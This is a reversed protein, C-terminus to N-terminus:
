VAMGAAPKGDVTTATDYTQAGLEVRAVDKIRLVGASGGARVVINAFEEARVLRGRATVTYTVAQGEPAPESGIKGAAYQQNQARIANAVDTPTVGLRAMKNPDLWIRMSYGSGFLTVDGVGPIRKLEDILNVTAYDALYVTPREGNPSFLGVVLL